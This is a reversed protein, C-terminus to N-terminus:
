DFAARKLRNPQKIFPEKVVPVVLHPQPDRGTIADPKKVADYVIIADMGTRRLDSHIFAVVFALVDSQQATFIVDALADLEMSIQVVSSKHPDEISLYLLILM